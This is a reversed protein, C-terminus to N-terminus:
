KKVEEACHKNWYESQCHGKFHKFHRPGMTAMLTGFTIVASLAVIFFKRKRNM